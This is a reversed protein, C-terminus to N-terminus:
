GGAFLHEHIMNFYYERETPLGNHVRGGLGMEPHGQYCLSRTDKFVAVEVDRSDYDVDFRSQVKDYYIKHTALKTYALVTPKTFGVDEKMVQHHISSALCLPEGEPGYIVHSRHHNDVDQYLNGGNLAWLLQGGRCIGALPKKGVYANYVSVEVDDRQQYSYTTSHEEAGYLDAGIDAGGTFQILDAEDPHRAIDWGESQFMHSVSYDPGVVYVSIGM